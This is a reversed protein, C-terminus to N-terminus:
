GPGPKEVYNKGTSPNERKTSNIGRLDRARSEPILRLLLNPLARKGLVSKKTSLLIVKSFTVTIAFARTIQLMKEPGKEANLEKLLFTQAKESKLAYRFYNTQAKNM